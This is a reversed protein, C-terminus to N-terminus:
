SVSAGTGIRQGRTWTVTYSETGHSYYGKALGGYQLEWLDSPSIPLNDMQTETRDYDYVDHIYYVINATYSLNNRTVTCKMQTSYTGISYRWGTHSPTYERHGMSSFTKTEGHSIMYEAAEITLNFDINRNNAVSPDDNMLAAVDIIKEQGHGNLYHSLYSSAPPLIVGGAITVLALQHLQMLQETRYERPFEYYRSLEGAPWVDHENEIIALPTTINSPIQPSSLNASFDGYTTPTYANIGLSYMSDSCGSYSFVKIHYTGELLITSLAKASNGEMITSSVLNTSQWIQIDYDCNAPIQTLTVTVSRPNDLAFAYYDVDVSTHISAYLYSPTSIYTATSPTDNQEYSDPTYSISSSLTLHYKTPSSGYCSRVMIYYSGISATFTIAESFNGTNSSAGCQGYSSNYLSLDYNCNTPINSLSISVVMPTSINFKYCDIDSETHINAMSISANNSITTATAFTNNPEYTDETPTNPYNKSRIRYFNNTDYSSDYGIVKMYYWTNATVTYGFIQEQDSTTTSSQLFTGASNYLYLDYDQNIPIDGLWFNATGSSSFSVKFYDVDGDYGITGYTTDDDLVGFATSHTNNPESEYLIRAIASDTILKSSYSLLEKEMVPTVASSRGTMQESYRDFLKGSKSLLESATKLKTVYSETNERTTHIEHAIDYEVSLEGDQTHLIFYGYFNNITIDDTGRAMISYRTELILGTLNKTEKGIKFNSEFLPERQEASFISLNLSSCTQLFSNDVVITLEPEILNNHFAYLSIISKEINSVVTNVKLDSLIAAPDSSEEAVPFVSVDESQATISNNALANTFTTLLLLVVLLMSFVKYMYTRSITHNRM